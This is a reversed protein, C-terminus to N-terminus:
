RSFFQSSPFEEVFDLFLALQDLLLLARDQPLLRLHLVQSSAEGFQFGRQLCRLLYPLDPPKLIQIRQLDEPIWSAPLWYKEASDNM